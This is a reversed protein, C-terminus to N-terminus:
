LNLEVLGEEPQFTTMLRRGAFLDELSIYVQRPDGWLPPAMGVSWEEFLKEMRELLEPQETSLDRTEGPDSELDYVFRHEDSIHVLKWRDEDLAGWNIGNRWFLGDRPLREVEGRLLPLLSSGDLPREQPVPVGMAELITPLLDM